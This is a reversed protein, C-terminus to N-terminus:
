IIWQEPQGATRRVETRAVGKVKIPRFALPLVESSLSGDAEPPVLVLEHGDHRLLRLTRKDRHVILLERVGIKSYFPVKEDSADGPSKVEVLFDPGGFYFADCDIARSNKLVVALDPIRYNRKWNKPRDSVNVGLFKQGLQPGKVVGTLIYNLDGLFRQQENSPPEPIVYMGDWVEDYLDIGKRKREAVILKLLGTDRILGRAM